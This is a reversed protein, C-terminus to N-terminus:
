QGRGVRPAAQVTSESQPRHNQARTSSHPPSTTQLITARESPPLSAMGKQMYELLAARLARLQSSPVRCRFARAFGGRKTANDFCEIKRHLYAGRGGVRRRVDLAIVAVSPEVASTEMAVRVLQAQPQTVRCGICMREPIHRKQSYPRTM